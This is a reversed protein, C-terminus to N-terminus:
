NAAFQKAENIGSGDNIDIDFFKEEGRRNKAKLVGNKADYRVEGINLPVEVEKNKEFATQISKVGYLNDIVLGKAVGSAEQPDININDLLEETFDSVMKQPTKDKLYESSLPAVRNVAESFSIGDRMLGAITKSTASPTNAAAVAKERIQGREIADQVALIRAQQKTDDKIAGAGERLATAYDGELLGPAAALLLDFVKEKNTKAGLIKEFTKAQAMLTEEDYELNDLNDKVTPKPTPDEKPALDEELDEKPALDEKQKGTVIPLESAEAKPLLNFSSNTTGEKIIDPVSRDIFDLLDARQGQLIAGRPQLSFLTDGIKPKPGPVLPGSIYPDLTTGKVLKGTSFGERDEIGTMIGTGKSNARGGDRFMPRKLIRSM